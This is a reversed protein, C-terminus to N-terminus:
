RIGGFPRRIIDLLTPKNFQVSCHKTEYGIAYLNKNYFIKTIRGDPYYMREMKGVDPHHFMDGPNLKLEYCVGNWKLLAYSGRMEVFEVNEDEQLNGWM